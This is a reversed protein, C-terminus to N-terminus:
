QNARQYFTITPKNEEFLNTLTKKNITIEVGINDFFKNLIHAIIEELHFNEKSRAFIYYGSAKKSYFFYFKLKPKEEPDIWQEFPYINFFYLHNIIVRTLARTLAEPSLQQIVPPLIDPLKM